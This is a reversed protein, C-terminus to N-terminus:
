REQYLELAQEIVELDKRIRPVYTRIRYMLQRLYKPRQKKKLFRELEVREVDTLIRTFM